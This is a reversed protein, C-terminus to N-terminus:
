LTKFIAVVLKSCITLNRPSLILSLACPMTQCWERCVFYSWASVLLLDSCTAVNPVLKAGTQMHIHIYIHIDAYLYANSLLSVVQYAFCTHSSHCEKRCSRLIRSLSCAYAQGEVACMRVCWIPFPLAQLRLALAERNLGSSSLRVNTHSAM